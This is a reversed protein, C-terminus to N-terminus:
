MNQCSEVLHAQYVVEDILIKSDQALILIFLGDLSKSMSKYCQARQAVAAVTLPEISTDMM